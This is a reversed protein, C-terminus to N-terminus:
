HGRAPMYGGMHCAHIRRRMHCAHIRRRMHCAHIRRRMHCAHIRRRMHCRLVQVLHDYIRRETNEAVVEGREDVDEQVVCMFVFLNQIKRSLSPHLFLGVGLSWHVLLCGLRLHLHHYVSAKYQAEEEEM